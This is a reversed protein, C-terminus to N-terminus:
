QRLAKMSMIPERGRVYPLWRPGPRLHGAPKGRHHDALRLAGEVAVLEGEGEGDELVEAHLQPHRLDAPRDVWSTLRVVQGHRQEAALGLALAHPDLGAHAGGRAGLGGQLAAEEAAPGGVAVAEDVGAAM